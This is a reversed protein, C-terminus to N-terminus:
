ELLSELKKKAEAMAAWWLQPGLSIRAVGFEALQKFNLAGENHTLTVNIRGGLGEVIKKLEADRLGRPPGGWVYVTTAGAELYKKGRAIAEDISKGCLIADNRANVVFNPVGEREAVELVKKIRAVHADVEVLNGGFSLSDELNIGVVGLRIISVVAEELRDGYGSQLDVTLPIEHTKGSRKIQQTIKSIAALNIELTLDDDPVGNVEAVAYSATALAKTKPHGLVMATSPADWVNTLIVPSGPIHLDKFKKALAAQATADIARPITSM